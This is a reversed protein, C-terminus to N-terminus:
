DNISRVVIAPPVWASAGKLVDFFRRALLSKQMNNMAEATSECFANREALGSTFYGDRTSSQMAPPKSVPLPALYRIPQRLELSNLSRDITQKFECLDQVPPNLPKSATLRRPPSLTRSANLDIPTRKIAM